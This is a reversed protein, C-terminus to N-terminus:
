CNLSRVVHVTCICDYNHFTNPCIPKLILGNIMILWQLNSSFLSCIQVHWTLSFNETGIADYSCARNFWPLIGCLDSKLCYTFIFYFVFLIFHFDPM